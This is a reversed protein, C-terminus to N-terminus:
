NGSGALNQSNGTRQLKHLQGRKELRGLSGPENARTTLPPRAPGKLKQPAFARASCGRSSRPEICEPAAQESKKM